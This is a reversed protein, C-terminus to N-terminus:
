FDIDLLVYTSLFLFFIDSNTVSAVLIHPWCSLLFLDRVNKKSTPRAQPWRLVAILGVHYAVTACYFLSKSNFCFSSIFM